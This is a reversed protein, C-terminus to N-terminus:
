RIFGLPHGKEDRYVATDLALYPSLKKKLKLWGLIM